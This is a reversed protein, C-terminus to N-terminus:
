FGLLSSGATNAAICVSMFAIKSTNASDSAIQSVLTTLATQLAATASSNSAIGATYQDLMKMGAAILASQNAAITGTTSVGYKSQMLPTTGSTLDSCAGYVLLQIQDFGTAKTPDTVSPLNPQVQALSKAFNGATSKANQELGNQIRAVVAAATPVSFSGVGPVSAAPLNETGDPATSSQTVDGTPSQVDAKKVSCSALAVVTLALTLKSSIKM